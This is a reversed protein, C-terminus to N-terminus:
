AESLAAIAATLRQASQKVKAQDDGGTADWFQDLLPQLEDFKGRQVASQLRLWWDNIEDLDRKRFAGMFGVLSMQVAEIDSIPSGPPAKSLQRGLLELSVTEDVGYTNFRHVVVGNLVLAWLGPKGSMTGTHVYSEDGFADALERVDDYSPNERHYDALRRWGDQASEVNPFVTAESWISSAYGILRRKGFVRHAQDALGVGVDLPRQREERLSFGKPVDPRALILKSADM